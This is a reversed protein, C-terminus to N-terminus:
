LIRALVLAAVPGPLICRGLCLAATRLRAKEAGRLRRVVQAAQAPSCALAAPLARGIGPCPSPVLAWDAAALPMRGPALLFDAFLFTPAEPGAQGADRGHQVGGVASSVARLVASADGTGLLAGVTGNNRRALALQLPTHGKSDAAEAAQPAAALLLRVVPAHGRLAALHLPLAHAPDYEPDAAGIAFGWGDDAAAAVMAAAPAAQLLLQVVDAHGDDSALHLPLHGVATAQMAAAPAAELLLRAM